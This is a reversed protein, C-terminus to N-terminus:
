VAHDTTGKGTEETLSKRGYEATCCVADLALM